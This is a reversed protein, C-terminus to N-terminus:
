VVQEGLEEDHIARFLLHIGLMQHPDRVPVGHDELRTLRQQVTNRHLGLHQATATASGFHSAYTCFLQVLEAFNPDRTLEPYQMAVIEEANARPLLQPLLDLPIKAYSVVPSSAGAEAIRAALWAERISERISDPTHHTRSYGVRLSLLQVRFAVAAAREMVQEATLDDDVRLFTIWGEGTHVLPAERFESLWLQHLAAGYRDARESLMCVAIFDGALSWHRQQAQKLASPDRPLRAGEGALTALSIPPLSQRLSALLEEALLTRLKTTCVELVNTAHERASAPVEVVLLGAGPDAPNIALSVRNPLVSQTRDAPALPARPESTSQIPVGSSELWVAADHLWESALELVRPITEASDVERGLRHLDSLLGARAFGILTALELAVHSIDTTTSFLSIQFRQALDVVSPSLSAAPVVLACARREWAYRLAASVMWSGRAVDTGLAIITDPGVSTIDEVDDIIIVGRVASLQSAIHVRTLANAMPLALLDRMEVSQASFSKM